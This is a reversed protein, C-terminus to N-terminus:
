RRRVTIWGTLLAVALWNWFDYTIVLFSGFLQNWAWIYAFPMLLAICLAALIAGIATPISKIKSM